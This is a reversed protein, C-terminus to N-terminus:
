SDYEDFIRWRMIKVPVNFWKRKSGAPAKRVVVKGDVPSAEIWREDGYYIMVHKDDAVAMDGVKITNTDFGALKEASGILRTYGYKDQAIDKADIDRWWFSWLKRGLLQPNVEKAGQRVMAHWLAARALGASDIGIDTEGNVQYPTGVFARLRKYYVQRLADTDPPKSGLVAWVVFLASFFVTPWVAANRKGIGSFLYVFGTFICSLLTLVLLLRIQATMPFIRVGIGCMLLLVGTVIACLVKVSIQRTTQTEGTESEIIDVMM